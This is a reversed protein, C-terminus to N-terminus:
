SKKGAKPKTKTVRLTVATTTPVTVTPVPTEEGHVFAWLQHLAETDEVDKSKTNGGSTTIKYEGAIANLGVLFKRANAKRAEGETVMARAEDYEAAVDVVSEDVVQPLQEPGRCATVRTCFQRCWYPPEDKLGDIMQEVELGQREATLARLKEHWEAARDAISRDFPTSWVWADDFAGDRPVYVLQVTTVPHGAEILGAAGLMIQKIHQPKPGDRRITSIDGAVGKSKYDSVTEADRDYRDITCPVGRYSFKQEIIRDPGALQAALRDHIANGVWADWGLRPDSEPVGNGLMVLEARCGSTDSAGAETQMSRPRANEAALLDDHLQELFDTM